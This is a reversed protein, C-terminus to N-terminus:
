DIHLVGENKEVAEKVSYYSYNPFYEKMFASIHKRTTMSYLGSCKLIGTSNNYSIVRTTYSWLELGDSTYVAYCNGHPIYRLRKIM